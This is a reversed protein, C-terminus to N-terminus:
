ISAARRCMIKGYGRSAGKLHHWCKGKRTLFSLGQNRLHILNRFLKIEYSVSLNALFLPKGWSFDHSSFQLCQPIFFRSHPTQGRRERVLQCNGGTSGEWSVANKGRSLSAADATPPSIPHDSSHLKGFKICPLGVCDKSSVSLEDWPVPLVPELEKQAEEKTSGGEGTKEGWATNLM